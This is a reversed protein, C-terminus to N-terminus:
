FHIRRIRFPRPPLPPQPPWPPNVPQPSTTDFSAWYYIDNYYFFIICDTTGNIVQVIDLDDPDIGNQLLINKSMKEKKM